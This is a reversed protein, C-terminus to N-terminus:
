GTCATNCNCFHHYRTKEHEYHAEQTKSKSHLPSNRGQSSKGPTQVNYKRLTEWVVENINDNPTAAEAVSQYLTGGSPIEIEVEYTEEPGMGNIAVYGLAAIVAIISISVAISKLMKLM